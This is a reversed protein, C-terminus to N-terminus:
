PRVGPTLPGVTPAAGPKVKPATAAPKNSAADIEAQTAARVDVKKGDPSVATVVHHTSSPKHHIVDNVKPIKALRKMENKVTNYMDKYSGMQDFNVHKSYLGMPIGEHGAKVLDYNTRFDGVWNIIKGDAKNGEDDKLTRHYHFDAHTYHFFEHLILFEVMAYEDPFDGGNSAYKKSKPKIGKARSFNLCQQLFHVNFIFEGKQTAAATDVDGFQAQTQPDDSPIFIIRPTIIPKKTYINRLPFISPNEVKVRRQLNMFMVKDLVPVGKPAVAQVKGDSFKSLDPGEIGQAKAAAVIAKLEPPIRTEPPAFMRFLAAEIANEAMTEYLIPSRLALISINKIDDAIEKEIVAVPVKSAKHIHDIISRIHPDQMTSKAMQALKARAGLAEGLRRLRNISVAPTKM